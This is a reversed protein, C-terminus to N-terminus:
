SVYDELALLADLRWRIDLAALTSRLDVTTRVSRDLLGLPPAAGEDEDETDLDTGGVEGNFFRDQEAKILDAVAQVDEAMLKDLSSKFRESMLDTPNPLAVTHAVGEADIWM